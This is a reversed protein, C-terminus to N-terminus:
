KNNNENTKCTERVIQAKVIWITETVIQLFIKNFDDLNFVWELLNKMGACMYMTQLDLGSSASHASAKDWISKGYSWILPKYEKFTGHKELIM